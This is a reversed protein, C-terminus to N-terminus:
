LIPVRDQDMGWALMATSSPVSSRNWATISFSTARSRRKKVLIERGRGSARDGEAYGAWSFEFGPRANVDAPPCDLGGEVVIFAFQGYSDEDFEIFGPEVLDLAQRDWKVMEVIRWRGTLQSASGAIDKMKFVM